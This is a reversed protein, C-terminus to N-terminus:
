GRSRLWIEVPTKIGEPPTYPLEIRRGEAASAYCAMMIELVQRGDQGSESPESGNRMCDFFHSDEQPYGNNWNWEYDPFTWGRAAPAYDGYGQLSYVNLGMGKLLDAHIVGQKGFVHTISDMGGLLAWSSELLATQGTEFELLIIVDDEMETKDKHLVTDMWASVARVRPKGLFWRAFEISHCGMDMLIGGGAKEAQWFWPSYPGEHKEVQSVRYVDGVGGGDAIQKARVYKPVFCLEEAYCVLVGKKRAREIIRDAEALTLCLPKEIIVHRGTEIIDVALSAHLFNPVGVIVADIDAEELMSKHDPFTDEIKRTKVFAAGRERDTDCHAAVRAGQLGAIADCHVGAIFGSGIIGVKIEKM